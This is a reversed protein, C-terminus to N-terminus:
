VGPLRGGPQVVGNVRLTYPAYDRLRETPEDYTVVAAVVDYGGARLTRLQAATLEGHFRDDLELRTVMARRPGATTYAVVQATWGSVRPPSIQSFSRWGELSSGDTLLTGGLRVDDIWWGPFAVSPDSIYRFALLITKGRYAALDFSTSIWAAFRGGGSRGTLGPLNRRVTDVASPDLVTTTLPNSLSRWTKGGDTSVQVFAFDRGTALDYYTEFALTAGASPVTVERVIGRDLGGGSGSRLALDGPHGLPNTDVTWEVPRPAFTEQGDFTLSEVQSARAFAGGRGRLRVYDSGNPPAGPSLYADTTRWNIAAALTGTRYRSPTGGALRAGRDLADDLASMAAWDHVIEQADRKSTRGILKRVAALGNAPDKHLASIFGLGYRSALYAMFTESAGYDCLIERDGQDGWVTLSNEPGGPLPNPNASTQTGINGFFCQTTSSLRTSTIPKTLDVYGTLSEAFMSLGENVWTLEDPDVYHELLHQYEHAFVSEVFNPRASRSRCLDGLVPNDPPTPGTRHIWDVGDITIVNRDVIDNIGPAFFGGVGVRVQVDYFTPDRINDVLAVVRAGDGVWYDAPLGSAGPFESFRAATGGRSPPVSFTQSEKPYMVRDFQDALYLAQADTLQVRDDNRCDGAPFELDKSVADQDSAVWVEIYSGLARLTFQKLYAQERDRDLAPWLREEGVVYAGSAARAAARVKDTSVPALTVSGRMGMSAEIALTRAPRASTLDSRASPAALALAGALIALALALRPRM